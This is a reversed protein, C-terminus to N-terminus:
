AHFATTETEVDFVGIFSDPSPSDNMSFAVTGDSLLTTANASGWNSIDITSVDLRVLLEVDLAREDVLFEEGVTDIEEDIAVRLEDVDGPLSLESEARQQLSGELPDLAVGGAERTTEVWPESAADM